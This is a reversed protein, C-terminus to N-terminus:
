RERERETAPATLLRYSPAFFVDLSYFSEGLGKKPKTSKDHRILRLFMIHRIDIKISSKPLTSVYHHYGGPSDSVQQGRYSVLRMQGAATPRYCHGALSPPAAAAQGILPGSLSTDLCAPQWPPPSITLPFELM